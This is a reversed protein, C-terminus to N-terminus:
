PTYEKGNLWVRDVLRSGFAYPLYALSPMPHSLWLNARKGCTISGVESQLELAFSANVTSANIAEEPTMRMRTCALSLVFSMNGSPCSGPNYDSALVIPLDEALMARADPYPIGLFFATGPLLTPFTTSNKLLKREEASTYELHDVSVAGIKVGVQVGGTLGLENAHLRIKLGAKQASRALRETEDPSFFGKDCFVDCYTAIGQEAVAPIMEEELLRLYGEHNSKYQAPYAHAGLFTAKVPIPFSAKLRQIVKLMKLESATTLGYGSKIEVAGTGLSIIERMRESAELFLIDEDAQTMASASNLIGGGRAAIEEYTLGHIRDVFEQERSAAFVLHTHSDVFSPFIFRGYCEVISDYDAEPPCTDMHGYAEILGNRVSLWANEICPVISMADGMLPHTTSERVQVLSRIHSFLISGSHSHM